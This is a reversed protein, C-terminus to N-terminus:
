SPSGRAPALGARAPTFAGCDIILLLITAPLIRCSSILLLYAAGPLLLGVARTTETVHSRREGPLKQDICAVRAVSNDAAVGAGGAHDCLRKRPLRSRRGIPSFLTRPYRIHLVRYVRSPSRRQSEVALKMGREDAFRPCESSSESSGSLRRSAEEGGGRDNRSDKSEPLGPDPKREQTSRRISPCRWCASSGRSGCRRLRRRFTRRDRRHRSVQDVSWRLGARAGHGGRFNSSVSGRRIRRPDQDPGSATAAPGGASATGLDSLRQAANIMMDGGGEHPVILHSQCRERPEAKPPCHGYSTPNAAGGSAGRAAKSRTLLRTPGIIEHVAVADIRLSSESRSLTVLPISVTTAAFDIKVLLTIQIDLDTDHRLVGIRRGAVSRGQRSGECRQRRAPKRRRIDCSRVPGLHRVLEDFSSMAGAAPARSYLLAVTVTSQPYKTQATQGHNSTVVAVYALAAVGIHERSAM